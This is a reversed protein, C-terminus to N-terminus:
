KNKQQFLYSFLSKFIHLVGIKKVIKKLKVGLKFSNSERTDNLLKKFKFTSNYYREILVKSLIYFETDSLITKFYDYASVYDVTMSQTATISEPNNRYYALPQNIFVAQTKNQFLQVWMVWDEKAKLKENFRLKEFLSAEFLGCHIPISFDEDWQYLISNFNFFESKLECYPEFSASIDNVFRRFNSIVIKMQNNEPNKLAQVSLQLKSDLLIDDSDLFQIYDGTAKDLGFNRASSLGGNQKYFYKFRSDKVVFNHAIKETEDTSGDNVLICEWDTYTQNLVSCLTDELYKAQNYCPVIISVLSKM